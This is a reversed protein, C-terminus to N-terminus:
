HRAEEMSITAESDIIKSPPEDLMEYPKKSKKNKKEQSPHLKVPPKVAYAIAVCTVSSAIFSAIIM